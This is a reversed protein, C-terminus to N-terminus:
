SKSRIRRQQDIEQALKVMKQRERVKPPYSENLLQLGAVEIFASLTIGNDKCFSKWGDASAQSVKVSLQVQPTNVNSMFVNSLQLIHKFLKLIYVLM